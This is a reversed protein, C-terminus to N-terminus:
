RGKRHRKRDKDRAPGGRRGHRQERAADRANRDRGKQHRDDRVASKARDLQALEDPTFPRDLEERLADLTDARAVGRAGRTVVFRVPRDFPPLEQEALNRAVKEPLQLRMVGILGSATEEVDYRIPIERGRIETMDSLALYKEREARPLLADANVSLRARRFSDVSRVGQAALQKQIDPM